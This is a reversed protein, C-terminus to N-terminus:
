PLEISFLLSRSRVWIPALYLGLCMGNNLLTATPTATHSQRATALSGTTTFAAPTQAFTTCGALLALLLASLIRISQGPRMLM